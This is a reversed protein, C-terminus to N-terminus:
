IGNDEEKLMKLLGAAHERGLSGLKNEITRLAQDNTMGMDNLLEVLMEEAEIIVQKIKGMKNEGTPQPNLNIKEHGKYKKLEVIPM